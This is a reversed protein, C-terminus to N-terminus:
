DEEEEPDDKCADCIDGIRAQNAYIEGRLDPRCKPCPVTCEPCRWETPEGQAGPLPALGLKHGTTWGMEKLERVASTLNHADRLETSGCLCLAFLRTEIVLGTREQGSGHYLTM